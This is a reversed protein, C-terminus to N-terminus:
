GLFKGSAVRFTCKELNLKMNFMRLLPFAEELHKVHDVRILSKLLMNDVCVKM